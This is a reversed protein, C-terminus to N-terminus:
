PSAATMRKIEELLESGGTAKDFLPRGTRKIEALKEPVSEGSFFLVRKRCEEPLKWFLQAGTKGGGMDFDLVIADFNQNKFLVELASEHGDATVVEACIKGFIKKSFRRIM